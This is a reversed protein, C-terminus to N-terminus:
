KSPSREPWRTVPNQSGAAQMITQLKSRKRRQPWPRQYATPRASLQVIGKQATSADQATYKGKALDYAAKVAKPTAALTESASDTASSLQTFGKEKLTTDISLEVSAIDSVMIVMRLTQARGSGKALEPKYSEAMNGAAILAGTDDYLGMECLWFGGTEPPIVLEAVVYNKHKKDQSIKNLAHRWVENVLKTQNPDPTPLKGGGDGVAMAAFNVKKGNPLTAAALKEAGAKTIVIKYKVTM